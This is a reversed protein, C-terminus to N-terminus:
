VTDGDQVRAAAARAARRGVEGTFRKTLQELRVAPRNAATATGPAAPPAAVQADGSTLIALSRRARRAPGRPEASHGPRASAIDLGRPGNYAVDGLRLWGSPPSWRTM